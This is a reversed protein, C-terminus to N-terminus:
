KFLMGDPIDIKNKILSRGVVFPNEVQSQVGYDYSTLCAVMPEVARFWQRESSLFMENVQVTFYHEHPTFVGLGDTGTDHLVNGKAIPIISPLLTPSSSLDEFFKKLGM